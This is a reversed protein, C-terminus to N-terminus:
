CLVQPVAPSVQCLFLEGALQPDAPRGEGAQFVARLISSDLGEVLDGFRELAINAVQESLGFQLLLVCSRVRVNQVSRM